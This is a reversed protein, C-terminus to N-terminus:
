QPHWGFWPANITSRVSWFLLISAESASVTSPLPHYLSAPYLEEEDTRTNQAEFFGWHTFIQTSTTTIAVIPTFRSRIHVSLQSLGAFGLAQVCSFRWDSMCYQLMCKFAFQDCYFLDLHYIDYKKTWVKWKRENNGEGCHMGRWGPRKEKQKPPPAGAELALSFRASSSTSKECLM